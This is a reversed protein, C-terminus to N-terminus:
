ERWSLVEALRAAPNFPGVGSFVIDDIAYRDGQRM